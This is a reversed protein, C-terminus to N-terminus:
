SPLIVWFIAGSLAALLLIGLVTSGFVMDARKQGPSLEGM